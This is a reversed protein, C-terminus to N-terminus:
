PAMRRGTDPRPLTRRRVRRARARTVATSLTIVDVGLVPFASMVPPAAKGATESDKGREKRM